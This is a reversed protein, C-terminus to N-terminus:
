YHLALKLHGALGSHDSPWLGLLDRVAQSDGTVTMKKVEFPGRVFVLDIRQDATSTQNRLMLDQCCTFGPATTGFATWADTFGAQQTVMMYTYQYTPHQPDEAHMNFDGAMIVPLTTMAPGQVLDAVQAFEYQWAFAEPHVTIFRFERDKMSVDVSAWGRWICVPDPSAAMPLCLTHAQSFLGQMPNSIKVGDADSGARVLIANRVTVGVWLGTDSPAVFQFEPVVNVVKYPTGLMKLNKLIMDLMEFESTMTMPSYGTRWDDVEQLAVLDPQQQHIEFAIAAMRLPPNTARVNNITVTVQHMFSPMDTAAMVELFDTGQYVNRTMVKLPRGKDNAALAFCQTIALVAILVFAFRRLRYM